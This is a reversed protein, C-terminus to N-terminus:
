IKLIKCKILFFKFFYVIFITLIISLFFKSSNNPAYGFHWLRYALQQGLLSSLFINNNLLINIKELFNCLFIIIIILFFVFIYSGSYYLFGYLSPLTLNNTKTLKPQYFRLADFYSMKGPDFKEFLNEKLFDFSKNKYAVIVMLSDIGFIRNKIILFFSQINYNFIKYSNKKEINSNDIINNINNNQTKYENKIVIKLNSSSTEIHKEILDTKKRFNNFHKTTSSRSDIL